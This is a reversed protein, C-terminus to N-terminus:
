VWHMDSGIEYVKVKLYLGYRVCLTLAWNVELIFSPPLWLVLLLAFLLLSTDIKNSGKGIKAFEGLFILLIELNKLFFV